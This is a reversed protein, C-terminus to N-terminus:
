ERGDRQRLQSNRILANRMSELVEVAVERKGWRHMLDIAHQLKIIFKPEDLLGADVLESAMAEVVLLMGLVRQSEPPMDDVKVEESM